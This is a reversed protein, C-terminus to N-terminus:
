SRAASQWCCLDHVFVPKTCVHGFAAGPPACEDLLEAGLLRLTYGYTSANKEGRSELRALGSEAGSQYADVPRAATCAQLTLNPCYISSRASKGCANNFATRVCCSAVECTSRRM